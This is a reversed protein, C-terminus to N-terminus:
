VVRRKVRRGVRATVAAPELSGEARGDRVSPANSLYKKRKGEEEKRGGEVWRWV